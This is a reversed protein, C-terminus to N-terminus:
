APPSFGGAQHKKPIVIQCRHPRVKAERCLRIASLMGFIGFIGPAGIPASGGLFSVPL